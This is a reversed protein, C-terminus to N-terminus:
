RQKTEWDPAIYVPANSPEPPAHGLIMDAATEGMMM